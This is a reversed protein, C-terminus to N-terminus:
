NRVPMATSLLSRVTETRKGEMAGDPAASPGNKDTSSANKPNPSINDGLQVDLAHERGKAASRNTRDVKKDSYFSRFEGNMSTVLFYNTEGQTYTYILNTIKKNRKNRTTDPAPKQELALPLFHLIDDITIPSRTPKFGKADLHIKLTHSHKPDFIVTHGNRTIKGGYLIKKMIDVGNKPTMALIDRKQAETFPEASFEM